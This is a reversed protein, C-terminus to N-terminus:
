RAPGHGRCGPHRQALAHDDLSPGGVPPPGLGHRGPALGAGVLQRGPALPPTTAVTGSTVM